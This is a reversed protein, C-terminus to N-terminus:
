KHIPTGRIRQSGETNSLQTGLGNNPKPSASGSGSASHSTSKEGSSVRKSTSRTMELERSQGHQQRQSGQSSSTAVNKGKEHTTASRRLPPPSRQGGQDSEFEDVDAMAEDLFDINSLVPVEREALWDDLPDDEEFIYDM